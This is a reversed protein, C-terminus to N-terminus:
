PHFRGSRASLRRLLEPAEFAAGLKRAYHDLRAVIEGAGVADVYRFPGGRFPPFGAGRVAAVDGAEPSAVLGESLARTAAVVVPLACRMQVEERALPQRAASPVPAEGPVGVFGWAALSDAVVAPSVGVDVLRAVASTLAAELRAVYAAARDSGLGAALDALGLAALASAVDGRAAPLDGGDCARARAASLWSLERAVSSLALEGYVEAELLDAGDAGRAAVRELLELAREPAPYHGRTAALLERRARPLLRRDPTGRGVPRRAPALAGARHRAALQRAMEAAREPVEGPRAVADILGLELARPAGIRAGRVGLDLAVDVGALEVTRALGGLHPPLGRAFDVLGLELRDSAVRAACALAVEAAPGVVRGDLAAVVPRPSGALRRLATQEARCRAEAHARSEPADHWARGPGSWVLVGASAHPAAAIAEVAAHIAEALGSRLASRGPALVLEVVFADEREASPEGSM